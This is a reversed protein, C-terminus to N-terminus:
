YMQILFFQNPSTELVIHQDTKTLSGFCIPNAFVVVIISCNYSVIQYKSLLFNDKKLVYEDIIKSVHIKIIFFFSIWINRVNQLLPKGMHLFLNLFKGTTFLCSTSTSLGPWHTSTCPTLTPSTLLPSSCFPPTSPSPVTAWVVRNLRRSRRRLLRHSALLSKTM